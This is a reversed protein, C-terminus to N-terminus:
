WACVFLLYTTKAFAKGGWLKQWKQWKLRWVGQALLFFPAARVLLSCAYSAACWKRGRLCSAGYLHRFAAMLAMYLQKKQM